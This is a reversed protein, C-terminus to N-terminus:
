KSSATRNCSKDKSNIGPKNDGTQLGCADTHEDCKEEQAFGKREKSLIVYSREKVPGERLRRPEPSFEDLGYGWKGYVKAARENSRFVTLMAKEVGVRAGVMEMLGMLRRGLGKGQLRPQLHLEYCYIVEYHDEDTVMFSLFGEVVDAEDGQKGGALILVYKM